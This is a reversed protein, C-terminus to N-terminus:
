SREHLMNEPNMWLIIQTLVENTKTALYYEPAHVSRRRNIRWSVSMQHQKQKKATIVLAATLMQTFARKHIYSWHLQHTRHYSHTVKQTVPHNELAVTEKKVGTLLTQPNQKSM